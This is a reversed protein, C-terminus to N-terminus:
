KNTVHNDFTINEFSYLLKQSVDVKENNGAAWDKVIYGKDNIWGEGDRKRVPVITSSFYFNLGYYDSM